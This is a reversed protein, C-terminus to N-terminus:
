PEGGAAALPRRGLGPLLLVFAFLLSLGIAAGLPWYYLSTVPTFYQSAGKVPELKDIEALANTADEASRARFYRGGSSTAVGELLKEDLYVPIMQPPSAGPMLADSAIGVAHIRMGESRAIEAALLPSLSGADGPSGSLVVLIREEAQHGQLRRVALGVGDGLASTGPVSPDNAMGVTAENVLDRLAGHDLTLPAQLAARNGFVVLGIRDGGRAAIFTELAAKAVRLRERPLGDRPLDNAGMALSVDLVLMVDRGDTELPVPAGLVVPRAAAVVLLGFILALVALRVGRWAGSGADAVGAGALAAFFPVRLAGDRRLPARPLLLRALLPLPLLALMWPWQLSIM